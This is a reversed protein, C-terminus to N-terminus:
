RIFAFHLAGLDDLVKQIRAKEQASVVEMAKPDNWVKAIDRSAQMMAAGIVRRAVPDKGSDKPMYIRPVM